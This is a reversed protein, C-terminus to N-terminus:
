DHAVCKFPMLCSASASSEDNRAEETQRIRELMMKMARDSEKKNPHYDGLMESASDSWDILEGKM